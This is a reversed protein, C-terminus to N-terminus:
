ELMICSAFRGCKIGNRRSSFFLGRNDFTCMGSMEIHQKELGSYLLLQLNAEWLDIHDKGSISNHKIIEQTDTFLKKLGITVENGVEYNQWSISPGICAFINKPNCDFREKMFSVTRPVIKQVTGRWGAHIAAIVQKEEDYLLLPLCDATLVAVCLQKEHTVLADTNTLEEPKTNKSVEKVNASHCQDPFFLREKPIDLYDALLACNKRVKEPDDEVIFSLNLSAYLGESVGGNRTTVCHVLGDIGSFSKFKLVELRDTKSHLM